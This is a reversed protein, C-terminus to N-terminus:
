KVVSNTTDAVGRAEAAGGRITSQLLAELKANIANVADSRQKRAQTRGAEDFPLRPVWHRPMNLRANDLWVQLRDDESWRLYNRNTQMTTRLWDLDTDPHPVPFCLENKTADDSYAAEVHATFAASFVQQCRSVAQATIHQGDFVPVAPRTALGDASCDIHLTDPETPITGEDLIITDDEIRQVRGLRIVNKVRRLQECEALSVTACRYMTPRVDDALRLLRMGTALREFLNEISTAELIAQNQVRLGAIAREALHPGPQTNVRNHLWADRPRIWVLDAPDISNALLWLCSDMATKGAGILVYRDYRKRINPLENPAVCRVGSAVEYPPPRMSPVTVNMYTTDVVRRRANVRYTDGSFSRFQQEGQYESMPFYTVRGTPLLQQQMVTDFYACVEGATALEYLGENWGSRDITGNGLARSNVGYAASSQHLRVFPYATTWHGGPRHYRDVIVVTANTESVLTDVFAMGMAGAGIVLYDTEITAILACDERENRQSSRAWWGSVAVQPLPGCIAGDGSIGVIRLILERFFFAM